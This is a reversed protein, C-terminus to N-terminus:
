ELFLKLTHHLSLVRPCSSFHPNWLVVFCSNTCSRFYSGKSASSIHESRHTYEVLPSKQLLRTSNDKVFYSDMPHSLCLNAQMIGLHWHLHIDVPQQYWCEMMHHHAIQNNPRYQQLHFCPVPHDQQVCHHISPPIQLVELPTSFFVLELFTPFFEHFFTAPPVHLRSSVHFHICGLVM